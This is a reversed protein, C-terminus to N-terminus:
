ELTINQVVFDNFKRTNKMNIHKHLSYMKKGRFHKNANKFILIECKVVKHSINLNVFLDKNNIRTKLKLFYLM